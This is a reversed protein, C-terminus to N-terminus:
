RTHAHMLQGHTLKLLCEPGRAIHSVVVQDVNYWWTDSLMM